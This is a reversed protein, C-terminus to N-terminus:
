RTDLSPFGHRSPFVMRAATGIELEKIPPLHQVKRGLEKKIAIYSKLNRQPRVQNSRLEKLPTESNYQYEVQDTRRNCGFITQITLRKTPIKM